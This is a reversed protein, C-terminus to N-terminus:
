REKSPSTSMAIELASSRVLRRDRAVRLLTQLLLRFGTRQVQHANAPPGAPGWIVIARQLIDFPDAYPYARFIAGTPVYVAEIESKIRFNDRHAPEM